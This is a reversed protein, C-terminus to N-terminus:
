FQTWNSVVSPVWSGHIYVSSCGTIQIQNRTKTKHGRFVTVDGLRCLVYDSFVAYRLVELKTCINPSPVQLSSVAQLVPTSLHVANCHPKLSADLKDAEPNICTVNEPSCPSSRDCEM